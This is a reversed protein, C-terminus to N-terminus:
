AAERNQYAFEGHLRRTMEEAALGALEADDFRPSNYARRDAKVHARFQGGVRTVNRYGTSNEQAKSNWCNQSHTAERLNEISNDWPQGNVHDIQGRPPSGHHMTWIIRHALYNTGKFSVVFYDSRGYKKAALKWLGGIRRQLRWNEDIRFHKRLVEVPPIQLEKM